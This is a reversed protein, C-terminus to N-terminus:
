LSIGTQQKLRFLEDLLTKILVRLHFEIKRDKDNLHTYVHDVKILQPVYKVIQILKEMSESELVDLVEQQLFEVLSPDIEGQLKPFKLFLRKMEHALVHILQKSKEDQVSVEVFRAASSDALNVFVSGSQVQAAVVKERQLLEFINEGALPLQISSNARLSALLEAYLGAAVAFNEKIRLHEQSNRYNQLSLQMKEYLKTENMTSIFGELIREVEFDTFGQQQSGLREFERFFQVLKVRYKQLDPMQQLVRSRNALGAGSTFTEARIDINGVEAVEPINVGDFILRESEAVKYRNLEVNRKLRAFADRYVTSVALEAVASNHKLAILEEKRRIEEGMQALRAELELERKNSRRLKEELSAVQRSLLDVQNEKETLLTSYDLVREGGNSDRVTYDIRRKLLGEIESELLLL